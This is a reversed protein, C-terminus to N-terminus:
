FLLLLPGPSEPDIKTLLVCCDLYYDNKRIRLMPTKEERIVVYSYIENKSGPAGTNEYPMLTFEGRSLLKVAYNLTKKRSQHVLNLM